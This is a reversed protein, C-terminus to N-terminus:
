RPSCIFHNSCSSSLSAETTQANAQCPCSCDAQTERCGRYNSVRQLHTHSDDDFATPCACGKQDCLRRPCVSLLCSRVSLLRTLAYISAQHLRSYRVHDIGITRQVLQGIYPIDIQTYLYLLLYPVSPVRSEAHWM